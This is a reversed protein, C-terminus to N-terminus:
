HQQAPQKTHKSQAEAPASPNVNCFGVGTREQLCAQFSQYQCDWYTNEGSKILCWPADGYAARSAPIDFCMAAALATIAIALRITKNAVLLERAAAGRNTWPFFVATRRNKWGSPQSEGRSRLSTGTSPISGV